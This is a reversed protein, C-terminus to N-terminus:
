QLIVPPVAVLFDSDTSGFVEFILIPLDSTIKITGGNQQTLGPILQGITQSVRSGGQIRIISSNLKHGDPAYAEVTVATVYQNPNYMAIGTYYGKPPDGFRGEALHGLAFSKGTQAHLSAPSLYKGHLADGYILDALLGPKDTTMKFTGQYLAPDTLPDPFGLIENAGGALTEHPQLTRVMPRAGLPVRRGSADTVEATVTITDNSLSNVMSLNSFIPTDLVGSGGSAFQAATFSTDATGRLGAPIMAFSSGIRVIEMGKIAVTSNVELYLHEGPIYASPILDGIRSRIRNHAPLSVDRVSVLTGPGSPTLAYLVLNLTADTETPNQLLIETTTQTGFKTVGDTIRSFGLLRSTAADALFGDLSTQDIAGSLYLLTIGQTLTYAEIYGDFNASPDFGFIQGAVLSLQHGSAIQLYRPNSTGPLLVGKNDRAILAVTAGADSFNAVALGSYDTSNQVLHPLYLPTPNQAILSLVNGTIDVSTVISGDNNVSLITSGKRVQIHKKIASSDMDWAVVEGVTPSPIYLTHGDPSFVPTTETNLDLGPIAIQQLFQTEPLTFIAITQSTVNVLAAFRGDPSVVIKAPGKGKCDLIAYLGYARDYRILRDNDYSAFLLVPKTPTGVVNNFPRPFFQDSFAFDVVGFAGVIWLGATDGPFNGSCVVAAEFGNRQPVQTMYNPNIGAITGGLPIQTRLQGDVMGYVCIVNYQPDAILATNTEASILINSRYTFGSPPNYADKRLTLDDANLFYLHQNAVCAVVLYLENQSLAEPGIGAPLQLSALVEGSATNFKQVLGSGPNTSYATKGDATYIVTSSVTFAGPAGAIEGIKVQAFAVAIAFLNVFLFPLLVRIKNM